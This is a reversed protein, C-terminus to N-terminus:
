LVQELRGWATHRFTEKVECSNTKKLMNALNEKFM